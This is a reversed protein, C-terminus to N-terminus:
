RSGRELLCRQDNRDMHIKSLKSNTKDKSINGKSDVGNDKIQPHIITDNRYYIGEKGKFPSRQIQNRQKAKERVMVLLLKYSVRRLHCIDMVWRKPIHVNNERSQKRNNTLVPMKPPGQSFKPNHDLGSHLIRHPQIMQALLRPVERSASNPPSQLLPIKLHQIRKTIQKRHHRTGKSQFYM